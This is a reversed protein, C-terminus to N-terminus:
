LHKSNLRYFILNKAKAISAITSNNNSERKRTNKSLDCCVFAICIWCRSQAVATNSPNPLYCSQQSPERKEKEREEGWRISERKFQEWKIVYLVIARAAWTGVNKEDQLGVM